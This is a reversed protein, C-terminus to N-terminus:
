DLLGDLDQRLRQLVRYKANYVASVSVGLQAAIDAAAQTTTTALWFAEWVPTRFESRILELARGVLYDRYEQEALEALPDSTAPEATAPEIPLRPRRQRARVQNVLITWLWGRFRKEPDYRFDPLKEVLITFVDQVLDAADADALGLKRAWFQLLPTYLQVFHEWAAPDSHRCLKDLLSVPTRTM